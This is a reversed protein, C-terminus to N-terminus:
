PMLAPPGTLPAAVYTTGIVSLSLDQENASLSASSILLARDMDELNALLASLQEYSGSVTISVSQVALQPPAAAVPASVVDEDDMAEDDAPPPPPPAPPLVPIGPSVTTLDDAAIGAAAAADTVAEFFGPQDATPPFVRELARAEEDIEPLEDALRRLATLQSSMRAAQDQVVTREADTEGIRGWQPGLLLFWGLAATALLALTGLFLTASVSQLKM